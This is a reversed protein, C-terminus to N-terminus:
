ADPGADQREPISTRGAPQNEVRRLQGRMVKGFAWLNWAGVPSLVLLVLLMLRLRVQPRTHETRAVDSSTINMTQQMGHPCRLTCPALRRRKGSKGSLTGERQSERRVSM